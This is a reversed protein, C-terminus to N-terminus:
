FRHKLIRHISASKDKKVFSHLVTQGWSFNKMLLNFYSLWKSKDKKRLHNNQKINSFLEMLNRNISKQHM